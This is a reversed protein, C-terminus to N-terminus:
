WRILAAGWSFGAGFAVLCLLDGKSIRGAAHAESLAIPISAATTNGYRAINSFVKEPCGLSEGVMSLIRANAQHPIILRLSELEIGNRSIIKRVADPMVLSATKFVLKGDMIPFTAPLSDPALRPSERFSPGPVGLAEAHTGDTHIEIDIIGRDEDGSSLVIAGAGDGFLVSMNRGSDSLDLGTSLIEAGVVVAVKSRGVRLACDAMSLAFLFGACQNRVEVVNVSRNGFLKRACHVASGAIEDEPSITAYYLAGVEDVSVGANQLAKRIAEAALESNTVSTSRVAGEQRAWHRSKIGTRETIWEDSTDIVRALDDNTVVRAPAAHGVGCVRPNM